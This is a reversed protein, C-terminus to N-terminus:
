RIHRGDHRRAGKKSARCADVIYSNLLHERQRAKKMEDQQERYTKYMLCERRCGPYREPCEKKCPHQM